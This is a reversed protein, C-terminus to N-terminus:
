KIDQLQKNCAKFFNDLEKLNIGSFSENPVFSLNDKAFCLMVPIGNVMQKFKFYSYLDANADIDLDCCLVNHPSISFFNNVIDEIKKCPGCWKASFKIIIIGTNKTLLINFDGRKLETIITKTTM